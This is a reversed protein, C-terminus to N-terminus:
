RSCCLALDRRGVGVGLWAGGLCIYTLSQEPVALCIAWATGACNQRWIWLNAPSLSTGPPGLFGIFLPTYDGFVSKPSIPHPSYPCAVGLQGALGLHCLHCLLTMAALLAAMPAPSLAVRETGLGWPLCLTGLNLTPHPICSDLGFLHLFSFPFFANALVLLLGLKFSCLKLESQDGRWPEKTLDVDQVGLAVALSSLFAFSFVCQM